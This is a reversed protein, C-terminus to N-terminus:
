KRKKEHRLIDKSCQRGNEKGGHLAPLRPLGLTCRQARARGRERKVHEIDPNGIKLSLKKFRLFNGAHTASRVGAGEGKKCARCTPKSNQPKAKQMEPFQRRANCLAGPGGEKVHM